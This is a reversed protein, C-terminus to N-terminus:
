WLLYVPFTTPTPSVCRVRKSAMWPRPLPMEMETRIFTPRLLALIWQSSQCAIRQQHHHTHNNPRLLPLPLSSSSPRLQLAIVLDPPTPEHKQSGHFHIAVLPSASLLAPSQEAISTPPPPPLQQHRKPRTQEPRTQLPYLPFHPPSPALKSVSPWGPNIIQRIPSTVFLFGAGLVSCARRCQRGQRAGCTGDAQGTLAQVVARM